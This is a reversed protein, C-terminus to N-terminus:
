YGSCLRNSITYQHQLQAVESHSSPRAADFPDQLTQSPLEYDYPIAASPYLMEHHEGTEAPLEREYKRCSSSRAM